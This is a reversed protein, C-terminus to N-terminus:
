ELEKICKRYEILMIKLIYYANINLIRQLSSLYRLFEDSKGMKIKLYVNLRMQYNAKQM